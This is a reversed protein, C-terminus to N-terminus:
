EFAVSRWELWVGLRNAARDAADRRQVLIRFLRKAAEHEPTLRMEGNKWRVLTRRDVGLTKALPNIWEEGYGLARGAEELLDGVPPLPPPAVAKLKPKAVM